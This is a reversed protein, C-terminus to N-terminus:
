LAVAIKYEVATRPLESVIANQHVVITKLTVVKRKRVLWRRNHAREILIDGHDVRPFDLLEIETFNLDDEAQPSLNSKIESAVRRGLVEVPDYYGGVWSTGYCDPCNSNSISRTNPDYCVVCRTGFHRKKLLFFKIGNLQSLMIYRDRLIKRKYLRLRGAETRPFATIRRRPDPESQNMPVPRAPNGPEADLIEHEVLGDLNIIPSYVANPAGSPPTVKVRYYIDRALSLTNAEETSLDDDYTIATLGTVIETWPGGPSGSREISFEFTGSENVESIEWQLRVFSPHWPMVKVVNIKV